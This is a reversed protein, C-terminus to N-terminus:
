APVARARAADAAAWHAMQDAHAKQFAPRTTARAVYAAANPHDTLAGRGAAARLVDAMAIDAVSFAGLLWERDGLVREMATLKATVRQSMRDMFAPPPAPGFIEPTDEAAKALVWPLTSIEVSNLAAFVWQLAEDRRGGPLLVPAREAIAMLIAGSEFLVAGDMRLIPVQGFPQEALHDASKPNAPVTEIRYPLGAEEFAWRARLDRVYGRPLDPVWSYTVIVPMDSTAPM